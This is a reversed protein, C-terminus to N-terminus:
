IAPEDPDVLEWVMDVDHRECVSQASEWMADNTAGPTDRSVCIKIGQLRPLAHPCSKAEGKAVYVIAQVWGRLMDELSNSHALDLRITVKEITKPLHSYCLQYDSIMEISTLRSKLLFEAVRRLVVSREQKDEVIPALLKLSRLSNQHKLFVNVPKSCIEEMLDPDELNDSEFLTLGRLPMALQLIEAALGEEDEPRWLRHFRCLELNLNPLEEFIQKLDDVDSTTTASIRLRRLKSKNSIFDSPIMNDDNELSILNAFCTGVMRSFNHVMARPPQPDGQEAAVITLHKLNPFLRFAEQVHKLELFCAEYYPNGQSTEGRFISDTTINADRLRKGLAGVIKEPDIDFLKFTMNSVHRLFDQDIGALWEFFDAQGEFTMPLKFFFPAVEESLQTNVVALDTFSAFADERDDQLLCGFIMERVELPITLLSQILRSSSAGARGRGQGKGKNGKTPPRPMNQLLSSSPPNVPVLDSLCACFLVDGSIKM